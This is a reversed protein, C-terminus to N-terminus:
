RVEEKFHYEVDTHLIIKDPLIDPRINGKNQIDSPLFFFKVNVLFKKAFAVDDENETM